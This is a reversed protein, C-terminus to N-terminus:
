KRIHALTETHEHADDGLQFLIAVSLDVQNINRIHESTVGNKDYYIKIIFLNNMM